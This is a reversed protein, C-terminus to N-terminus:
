KGGEATTQNNETNESEDDQTNINEIPAETQPTSLDQLDLDGETFGEGGETLPAEKDAELALDSSEQQRKAAEAMAREAEARKLSVEVYLKAFLKAAEDYSMYAEKYDSRDAASKGRNYTKVANNYEEKRSRAVKISDCYYKSEKASDKATKAFEFYGKNVVKKYLKLADESSEKAMKHDLPYHDVTNISFREADAYDSPSYAAFGNAEIETRLNSAETLNILTEYRSVAEEYKAIAEKLNGTEAATDATRKVDDAANFFDPYAEDAGLEVAKKRAKNVKGNEGQFLKLEALLPDQKVAEQNPEEKEVVPAKVEEVKPEPPTGQAKQKSACSAFFLPVLISMLILLKYNKKM